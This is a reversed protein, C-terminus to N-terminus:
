DQKNTRFGFALSWSNAIIVMGVITIGVIFIVIVGICILIVQDEFSIEYEIDKQNINEALLESINEFSLEEAYAISM